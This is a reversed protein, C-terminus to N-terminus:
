TNSKKFEIGLCWFLCDVEIFINNVRKGTLSNTGITIGFSITYFNTQIGVELNNVDILKIIESRM